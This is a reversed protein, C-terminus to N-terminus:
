RRGSYTVTSLAANFRVAEATRDPLGGADACRDFGLHSLCQHSRDGFRQRYNRPTQDHHTEKFNAYELLAFRGPQSLPNAIAKPESWQDLPPSPRPGSPQLSVLAGLLSSVLVYPYSDDIKDTEFTNLTTM